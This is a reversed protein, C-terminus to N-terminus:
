FCYVDAIRIGRSNATTPDIGANTLFKAESLDFGTSGPLPLRRGKGARKRIPESFDLGVARACRAM